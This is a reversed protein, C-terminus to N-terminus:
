VTFLVIIFYSFSYEASVTKTRNTYSLFKGDLVLAMM